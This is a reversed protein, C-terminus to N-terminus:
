TQQRARENANTKNMVIVEASEADLLLADASCFLNVNLLNRSCIGNHIFVRCSPLSMSNIQRSTVADLNNKTQGSVKTKRCLVLTVSNWCCFLSIRRLGWFLSSIPLGRLPFGEAYSYSRSPLREKRNVVWPLNLHLVCMRKGRSERFPEKAQMAGRCSFTRM